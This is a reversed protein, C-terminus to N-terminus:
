TEPEPARGVPRLSPSPVPLADTGPGEAGQPSTESGVSSPGPIMAESVRDSPGCSPPSAPPVQRGATVGQHRERGYGTEWLPTDSVSSAGSPGWLFPTRRGEERFVGVGVPSPRSVGWPAAVDVEAVRRVAEPGALVRGRGAPSPAGAQAWPRPAGWRAAPRSSRGTWPGLGSGGAVGTASSGSQERRCVRSLCLRWRGVSEMRRPRSSSSVM